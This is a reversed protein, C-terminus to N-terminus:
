KPHVQQQTMFAYIVKNLSLSKLFSLVALFLSLCRVILLSPAKSSWSFMGLTGVAHIM